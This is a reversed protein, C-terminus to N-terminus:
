IGWWGLWLLAEFDLTSKYAVFLQVIEQLFLLDRNFAIWFKEEPWPLWCNRRIGGRSVGPLLFATPHHECAWEAFPGLSKPCLPTNSAPCPTQLKAPCSILALISSSQTKSLAKKERGWMARPSGPLLQSTGGLATTFRPKYPQVLAWNAWCRLGLFREWCLSIPSCFFLWTHSPSWRGSSAKFISSPPWLDLVTHPWYFSPIVRLQCAALFHPRLGIGDLFQIRGAGRLLLSVDELPEPFPRLGGSM